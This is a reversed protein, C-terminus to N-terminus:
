MFFKTHYGYWVHILFLIKNPLCNDSVYTHTSAAIMYVIIGHSLGQVRSLVQHINKPLYFHAVM